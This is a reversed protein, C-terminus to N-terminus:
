WSIAAKLYVGRGRTQYGYIESYRVNFVNEGRLALSFHPNFAYRAYLDTLFYSAVSRTNLAGFPGLQPDYYVDNRTGITRLLAGITGKKVPTYALDLNATVRPRRVLSKTEVERTLFAGNSFLQVSKGQVKAGTLDEPRYTFTGEVLGLNVNLTLKQWLDGQLSLELGRNGQRAVNIPVDGLYDSFSLQDVPKDPNWLYVYEVANTVVTSFASFQVTWNNALQGKWGAEVTASTEAGLELNGREPDYLQYLSPANFGTAYSAYLLNNETLKWSPNVEVTVNNGFLNHRSLRASVSLNLPALGPAVLAGNLGAQGFLYKTSAHLRISDYNTTSTFEGFPGNSYYYTRFAAEEDYHGAGLLAQFHETKYVGQVEHTYSKGRYNGESYIHDYNGAPDVVSSDDLVRRNLETWGGVFSFQWQGSPKFSAGYNFLGRQLHSTSNDDDRFAGKDIDALQYVNKYAASAEWAGKRYGLKVVADTKRFDDRDATKFQGVPITDVTANLGNVRNDQLGANVYFGNKFSYSGLVNVALLGTGAGFTGGQVDATGHFGPQPNRRTIINIVGGIGSTGYMPGHSGRIIEIREVNALSLESLDLASNVSSPDNLRIGDVLVNVHNGNAGRLFLTQNTGPTQGAGVVYLGQTRSLLEAVNVYISQEIEQRGIVTVSRPTELASRETRTATVVVEQLPVTKLSDQGYVSTNSLLAALLALPCVFRFFKRM